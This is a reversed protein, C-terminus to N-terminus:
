AMDIWDVVQRGMRLWILGTWWRDTGTRLWILGTWWSDTGTRLWVLGTWWSDTGTRLWILGSWAEGDQKKFIWKPIKSSSHSFPIWIKM